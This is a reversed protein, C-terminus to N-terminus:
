SGELGGGRVEGQRLGERPAELTPQLSLGVHPCPARQAATLRATFCCSQRRSSSLGLALPLPDLFFFFVVGSTNQLSPVTFCRDPAPKCIAGCINLLNTAVSDM